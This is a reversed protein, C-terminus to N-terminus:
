RDRSPDPLNDVDVYKEVFALELIVTSMSDYLIAATALNATQRRVNFVSYIPIYSLARSYPVIVTYSLTKQYSKLASM